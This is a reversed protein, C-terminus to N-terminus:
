ELLADLSLVRPQMQSVIPKARVLANDETQGPFSKLIIQVAAIPDGNRDRLPLVVTFADRDRSISTSGQEIVDREKKGGLQGAEQENKSGIVSPLEGAARIAFIKLNLV